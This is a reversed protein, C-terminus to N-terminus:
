IKELFHPRHCVKCGFSKINQACAKQTKQDPCCDPHESCVLTLMKKMCETFHWCLTDGMRKNNLQCQRNMMQGDIGKVWSKLLKTKATKIFGRVHQVDFHSNQFHHLKEIAMRGCVPQVKCTKFVKMQAKEKKDTNKLWETHDVMTLGTFGPSGMLVAFCKVRKRNLKFKSLCSRVHDGYGYQLKDSDFIDDLKDNASWDKVGIKGALMSLRTLLREFSNMRYMDFQSKPTAGNLWFNNEMLVEYNEEVSTASNQYVTYKENLCTEFGHFQKVVNTYPLCGDAKLDKSRLCSNGVRFDTWTHPDKLKGDSVMDISSGPYRTDNKFYSPMDFGEDMCSLPAIWDDMHIKKRHPLHLRLKEMGKTGHAMHFGSSSETSRYDEQHVEAATCIIITCASLVVMWLSSSLTKQFHM